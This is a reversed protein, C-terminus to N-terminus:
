RARPPAPELTAALQAAVLKRGEPTFHPGGKEFVACDSAELKPGAHVLEPHASAVAAIAADIM